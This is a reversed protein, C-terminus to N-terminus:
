FLEQRSRGSPGIAVAESPDLRVHAFEDFCGGHEPSPGPTNSAIYLYVHGIIPGIQTAPNSGLEGFESPRAWIQGVRTLQWSAASKRWNQNTGASTALTSDLASARETQTAGRPMLACGGCRQLRFSRPRMSGKGWWRPLCEITKHKNDPMQSM